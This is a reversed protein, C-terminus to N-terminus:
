GISKNKNLHPFTTHRTTKGLFEALRQFAGEEAIDLILFQDKPRNKFYSLVFERHERFQKLRKEMDPYVGFRKFTWNYISEKWSDEDRTLYIFKSNPFTRDLIPIMDMKLWPLDDTSEFRATYRLINEIQNKKYYNFWVRRNFSTHRYGLMTLARGCSTTGTKNFGVCFVKSDYTPKRFVIRSEQCVDQLRDRMIRLLRKVM